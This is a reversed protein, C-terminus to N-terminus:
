LKPGFLFDLWGGHHGGLLKNVVGKLVDFFRVGMIDKAATPGSGGFVGPVLPPPFQNGVVLLLVHRHPAVLPRSYGCTNDLCNTGKRGWSSKKLLIRKSARKAVNTVLLRAQFRCLGHPIGLLLLVFFAFYCLRCFVAISGSPQGSGCVALRGQKRPGIRM